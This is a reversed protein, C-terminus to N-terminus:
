VISHAWDKKSQKVQAEESPNVSGAVGGINPSNPAKSSKTPINRIVEAGKTLFEVISIKKSKLDEALGAPVASEFEEPNLDTNVKFFEAALDRNVAQEEATFTVEVESQVKQEFDARAQKHASVELNNMELRWAEPDKYKLADLRAQTESDLSLTPAGAALDQLVKNEAKLRANEQQVPTLVSQTDRRRKEALEAKKQWDAQSPPNGAESGSAQQNPHEMNM